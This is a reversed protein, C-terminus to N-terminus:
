NSNKKEYVSGKNTKIISTLIDVVIKYVEVPIAEGVNFLDEFDFFNENEVIKISNKKAEEIIKQALEDTGYAAIVPTDLDEKFYKLAAAKKKKNGM